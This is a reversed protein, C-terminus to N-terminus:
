KKPLRVVQDKGVGANKRTFPQSPLAPRSPFLSLQRSDRSVVEGM